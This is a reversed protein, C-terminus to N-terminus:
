HRVFETMGTNCLLGGYFRGLAKCTKPLPTVADDSALDLKNHRIDIRFLDRVFLAGGTLQASGEGEVALIRACACVIAM